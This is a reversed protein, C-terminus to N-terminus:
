DVLPLGTYPDEVGRCLVCKRRHTRKILDTFEADGVGYAVTIPDSVFNELEVQLAPCADPDEWLYWPRNM